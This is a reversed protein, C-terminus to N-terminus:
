SNNFFCIQDSVKLVMEVTFVATFVYDFYNLIQNRRSNEDVPDETALTISSGCIVAMILADFCKLTVVYHVAQRVCNDPGLIFMCSYPVIPRPGGFDAPVEETDEEGPRGSATPPKKEVVVPEPEPDPMNALSAEFSAPLIVKLDDGDLGPIYDLDVQRFVMKDVDMDQDTPKRPKPVMGPPALTTAVATPTAAATGPKAAAAAPKAGGVAAPQTTTAVPEVPPAVVKKKRVPKEKEILSDPVVMSAQKAENKEKQERAAAEAAEQENTMEQATALNDVAIALFV